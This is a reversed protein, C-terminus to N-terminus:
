NIKEVTSTKDTGSITVIFLSANDSDSLNQYKEEGLIINVFQPTTNSHGVILVTKGKTAEQFDENYMESLSYNLIDLGQNDATPAATQMTRKYNSSYIADFNVDNFYVAWKEARDQGKELLDPNNTAATRDKESHRILYYTTDEEQSTTTCSAFVILCLLLFKKM